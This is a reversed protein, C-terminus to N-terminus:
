QVRKAGFFANFGANQSTLALAGSTITQRVYINLVDNAVCTLRVGAPIACDTIQGSSAAKFVRGCVAGNGNRGVWIERNGTSNSVWPVVGSLEYIGNQRILIGSSGTSLAASGTATISGGTWVIPTITNNGISQAAADAASLFVEAIAGLFASDADLADKVANFRETTNASMLARPVPTEAPGSGWDVVPDCYVAPYTM